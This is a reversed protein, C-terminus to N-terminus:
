RTTTTSVPRRSHAFAARGDVEPGARTGRMWYDVFVCHQHGVCHQFKAGRWNRGTQNKPWQLQM